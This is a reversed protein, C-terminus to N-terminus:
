VEKHAGSGAPDETLTTPSGGGSITVNGEADPEIGNVTRVIKDWPTTGSFRAELTPDMFEGTEPYYKVIRGYFDSM